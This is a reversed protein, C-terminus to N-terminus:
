STKILNLIESVDPLQSLEYVRTFKIRGIEDVFVNAREAFGEKERFLGYLRAIGGHPWFDSLLRARGIGLSRAWAEKCPVSDVSLGVPVTNLLDFSDMNSELSQMQRACIDTWALPHFSLLVRKGRLSSLHFTKGQHDRLTFDEAQEGARAVARTEPM